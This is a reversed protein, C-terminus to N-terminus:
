QALHFATRIQPIEFQFDVFIIFDRVSRSRPHSCHWCGFDTGVIININQHSSHSRVFM